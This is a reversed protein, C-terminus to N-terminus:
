GQNQSTWMRILGLEDSHSWLTWMCLLVYLCVICICLLVSAGFPLFCLCLSTKELKSDINVKQYIDNIYNAFCFCIWWLVTIEYFTPGCFTFHQLVYLLTACNLTAFHLTSDWFMLHPQLVYLIAFHLTFM